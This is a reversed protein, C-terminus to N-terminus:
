GRRFATGPRGASRGRRRRRSARGPETGTSGPSACLRLRMIRCSYSPTHVARNTCPTPLFFEAATRNRDHTRGTQPARAAPGSPNRSGRGFPHSVKVAAVRCPNHPGDSRGILMKGEFGQVRPLRASLGGGAAAPLDEGSPMMAWVIRGAEGGLLAIAQKAPVAAEDAAAIATQLEGVGKAGLPAVVGMEAAHGRMANVLQTRQRVLLERVSLLM